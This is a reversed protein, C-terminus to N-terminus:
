ACWLSVASESGGRLLTRRALTEQSRPGQRMRWLSGDALQHPLALAPVPSGPARSIATYINTHGRWWGM